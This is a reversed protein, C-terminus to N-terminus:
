FAFSSPDRKPRQTQATPTSGENLLLVVGTVALAGAGVFAVASWTRLRVADDHASQDQRESADFEDRRRLGQTTFLTGAGAFIVAGGLSIWPWPYSSSRAESDAAIAPTRVPASRPPPRTLELPLLQGRALEVDRRTQKGDTWTIAVSYSGPVLHVTRPTEAGDVHAVSLRAPTATKVVLQALETRLQALRTRAIERKDEPLQGSDLAGAYDDAARVASGDKDWAVAAAFLAGGHPAAEYASEFARAAVAYQGRAYARQGTEFWEQAHKEDAHATTPRTLCALALCACYAFHRVKNM